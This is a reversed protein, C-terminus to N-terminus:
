LILYLLFLTITLYNTMKVWLFHPNIHVFKMRRTYENIMFVTLMGFYFNNFSNSQLYPSQNILMLPICLLLTISALMNVQGLYEIGSKKGLICAVLINIGVVTIHAWQLQRISTTHLLSTSLLYQHLPFLLWTNIVLFLSMFLVRYHINFDPTCDVNGAPQNGAVIVRRNFSILKYIKQLCWKIPGINGVRKIFPFKRGLIELLADIGYWVQKKAPDILPIENVSKKLDILELLEPSITSFSQRGEKQLLGTQVFASTYAACLPCSEDYVIITPDSM